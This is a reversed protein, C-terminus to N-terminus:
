QCCKEKMKEHCMQMMEECMAMPNESGQMKEMMGCLQEKMADTCCCSQGTKETAGKALIEAQVAQQDEPSMEAFAKLCDEKNM